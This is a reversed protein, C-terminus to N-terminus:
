AIGEGARGRDNGPDWEGASVEGRRRDIDEDCRAFAKEIREAPQGLLMAGSQKPDGRRIAYKGDPREEIYIQEENVM